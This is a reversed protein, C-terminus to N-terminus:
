PQPAHCPPSPRPFPLLFTGDLESVGSVPGFSSLSIGAVKNMKTSCLCTLLFCFLHLHAPTLCPCLTPVCATVARHPPTHPAYQPLSTWPGPHSGRHLAPLGPAHAGNARCWKLPWHPPLLTAPPLPILPPSQHSLGTTCCECFPATLSHPSFGAREAVAPLLSLQPVLTATPSPPAPLLRNFKRLMLRIQQFPPREQPEEAWCRQMLQGLEELHSQLALSPRFPPQEGRTVREVIETTPSSPSLPPWPSVTPLDLVLSPVPFTGLCGHFLPQNQLGM